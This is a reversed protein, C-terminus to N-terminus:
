GRQCHIERIECRNVGPHDLENVQHGTKVSRYEIMRVPDVAADSPLGANPRYAADFAAIGDSPRVNAASSM